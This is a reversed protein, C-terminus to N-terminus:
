IIEENCLNYIKFMLMKRNNIMKERDFVIKFFVIM